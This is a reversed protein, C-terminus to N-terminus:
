EEREELIKLLYEWVRRTSSISLREETTHINEMQPGFSVCDLDPIKDAIIGCELGAHVAEVKTKEGYMAEYIRVMKDRLPSEARYKWGPYDGALTYSGGALRTIAAVKEVLAKKASEVSSRLSITVSFEGVEYCLVGLNLSTEVLGEVDASMCQVGNPLAWLFDAARHTDEEEACMATTAGLKSLIIQVKGDRTALEGLIESNLRILGATERFGALLKDTDFSTLYLVEKEFANLLYADKLAVKRLSFAKNGRMSM